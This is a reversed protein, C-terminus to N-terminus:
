LIVCAVPEHVENSLFVFCFLGFGLFGLGWCCVTAVSFSSCSTSTELLEM